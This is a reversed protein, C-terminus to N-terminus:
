LPIEAWLLRAAVSHTTTSLTNMLALVGGPPIIWSGDFNQAAAASPTPTAAAITTTLLASASNFDAAPEIIVLNNTLGTLVQGGSLTFAMTQSGSNNLTKRSFPSTGATLPAYNGTSVAWVFDGPAVSTATNIADRMASQLLVINVPSNIPNWVGVIPQAGSGLSTATATAASLATLKSSISFLNNRYCNEYFRGHLESVIMEGTKGARATNLAGDANQQVGPELQLLM